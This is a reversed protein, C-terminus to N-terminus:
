VDFEFLEINQLACGVSSMKGESQGSGKCNAESLCKDDKLRRSCMRVEATCLHEAPIDKFRVFIRWLDDEGVSELIHQCLWQHERRMLEKVSNNICITELVDIFEEEHLQRTPLSAVKSELARAWGKAITHCLLCRREEPIQSLTLPPDPISEMQRMVANRPGRALVEEMSGEHGAVLPLVLCLVRM